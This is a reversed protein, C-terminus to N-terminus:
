QASAAQANKPGFPRRSMWANKTESGKPDKATSDSASAPQSTAVAGARAAGRVRAGGGAGRRGAGAFDPDGMALFVRQHM